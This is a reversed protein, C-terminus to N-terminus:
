KANFDGADFKELDNAGILRNVIETEANSRQRPADEPQRHNLREGSVVDFLEAQNLRFAGIEQDAIGPAAQDGILHRLLQRGASLGNLKDTQHISVQRHRKLM